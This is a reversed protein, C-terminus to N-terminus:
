VTEFSAGASPRVTWGEDIAGEEALAVVCGGWGGGTLRAGFVGRTAVLRAVLADLAATTVAHNDRLSEHPETMLAGAREVDESSLADVFAHVRAIETVVHRARKRVAEDEISDVDDLSAKPLPGLLEAAQEVEARRQAYGVG